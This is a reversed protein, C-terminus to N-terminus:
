RRLVSVWTQWKVLLSGSIEEDWQTKARWVEQLLIKLYMLLHGILGLPDYISMLIKLIERKTPVRGQLLTHPEYRPSIKFTFVDTETNWWMGLVKETTLEVEVPAEAGPEVRNM